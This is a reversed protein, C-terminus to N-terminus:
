RRLAENLSGSRLPEAALEVESFGADMVARSAAQAVAAQALRGHEQAAIEVRARSGYYRVRLERFGLERLAAEAAAVQALAQETIRTGYPFRSSLCPSAPMEATPLGYRRSLERVEAKSLGAEVLPHRVGQETAARLGPRYDSLDDCNVGDAVWALGRQRAVDRCLPYLTQKCLYCRNAPNEAYGPTELENTALIIHEIGIAAALTRAQEVEERTNTPSDTTVALLRLGDASKRRAGAAAALVLTSDVGGSYALVASGMQRLCSLLRQHKADLSADNVPEAPMAGM